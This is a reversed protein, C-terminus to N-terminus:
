NTLDRARESYVENLKNFWKTYTDEDDKTSELAANTMEKKGKKFVDDLTDRDDAAKLKDSYDNYIKEYASVDSAETAQTSDEAVTTIEVTEEQSGNGGCACFGVALVIIMIASLILKFERKRLVWMGSKKMVNMNNKRMANVGIMKKERLIIDNIYLLLIYSKHIKQFKYKM